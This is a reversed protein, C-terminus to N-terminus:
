VVSKRDELNPDQNPLWRGVVTSGDRSVGYTESYSLALTPDLTGLGEFSQAGAGLALLWLGGM